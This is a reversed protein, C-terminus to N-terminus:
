GVPEGRQAVDPVFSRTEGVHVELPRELRSAHRPGAEEDRGLGQSGRSGVREM